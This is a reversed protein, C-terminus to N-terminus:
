TRMQKWEDECQCFGLRFKVLYCVFDKAISVLAAGTYAADLARDLMTKGPLSTVPM